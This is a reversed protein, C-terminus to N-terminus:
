CDPAPPSPDTLPSGQPVVFLAVLKAEDTGTNVLKGEPQQGTELFSEGAKYTHSQCRVWRTVEGQTVSVFVVGPHFHWGSDAGPAYTVRQFVMTTPEKTRFKIQDANVKWEEGLQSGPPFATLNERTITGIPATALAVAAPIAAAVAVTAVLIWRKIM